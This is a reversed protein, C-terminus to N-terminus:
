EIAWVYVNDLWYTFGGSSNRKLVFLTSGNELDVDGEYTAWDSTFTITFNDGGANGGILWNGGTSKATIRYRIKSVGSLVAQSIQTFPNAADMVIKCSAVGSAFDVTDRTMSSGSGITESWNAFVDSGGGGATEFGGNNLGVGILPALHYGDISQTIPRVIPQVISQTIM